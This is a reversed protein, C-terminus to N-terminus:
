WSLCYKIATVSFVRSLLPIIQSVCNIFVTNPIQVSYYLMAVPTTRHHCHQYHLLGGPQTPIDDHQGVAGGVCHSM